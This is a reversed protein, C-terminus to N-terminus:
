ERRRLGSEVKRKFPDRRRCVALLGRVSSYTVVRPLDKSTMNDTVPKQRIGLKRYGREIFSSTLVFAERRRCRELHKGDLRKYHFSVGRTKRKRLNMNSEYRCRDTGLASLCIPQALGVVTRDSAKRRDSKRTIRPPMPNRSLSLAQPVRRVPNHISVRSGSRRCFWGTM